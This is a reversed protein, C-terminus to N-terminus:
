WVLSTRRISRSWTTWRRSKPWRSIRAASKHEAILVGPWFLDIRGRGGTSARTARQEFVGVLKRDVGFMALFEDWFSQAGANEDTETSWRASFVQASARIENWSPPKAM